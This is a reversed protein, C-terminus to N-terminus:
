GYWVSSDEFGYLPRARSIILRIFGWSWFDSLEEFISSQFDDAMHPVAISITLTRQSVARSFLLIMLSAATYFEDFSM